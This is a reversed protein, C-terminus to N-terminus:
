RPIETSQSVVAKQLLPLLRKVEAETLGSTIAIDRVMKPTVVASTAARVMEFLSTGPTNAQQSIDTIQRTAESTVFEDADIGAEDFFNKLYKQSLENRDFLSDLKESMKIVDEAKGFKTKTLVQETGAIINKLESYNRNAEQLIPSEKAITSQLRDSIDDIFQNFARAEETSTTKYKLGEVQGLKQRLNKGTFDEISDVMEVAKKARNVYRTQGFEVGELVIDEGQKSIGFDEAFERMTSSLDEKNVPVQELEDLAKGFDNSATRQVKKLGDIITRANKEAINATGKESIEEVTQKALTPNDSVQRIIDVPAGSLASGTGRFLRKILGYAPKALRGAVPLAIEAGSAIATEKGVEGEQVTAVTGSSGVQGAVRPVLSAGKTAKSAAMGPVAFQAVDGVFDGVMQEPNKATLFRTAKENAKTGETFIDATPLGEGTIFEVLRGATQEGIKTGLEGAGKVTSLLSKTVGEFIGEMGSAPENEEGKIAGGIVSSFAKAQPVGPISNSLFSMARSKIDPTAPEFPTESVSTEEEIVQPQSIGSFDILTSNPEAIDGREHQINALTQEINLKPM